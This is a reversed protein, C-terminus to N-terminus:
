RKRHSIHRPRLHMYQKRRELELFTAQPEQMEESFDKEKKNLHLDFLGQTKQETM